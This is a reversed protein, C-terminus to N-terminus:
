ELVGSDFFKKLQPSSKLWLLSKKSVRVELPVGHARIAFTHEKAWRSMKRFAKFEERGVTKRTIRDKGEYIRPYQFTIGLFLRDKGFVHMKWSQDSSVIATTHKLHIPPHEFFLIWKDGAVPQFKVIDEDIVFRLHFLPGPDTYVGKKLNEIYDTYFRLFDKKELKPEKFPASADLFFGDPILALFTQLEEPDILLSIEEFLSLKLQM